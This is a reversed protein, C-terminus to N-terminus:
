LDANMEYRWSWRNAQTEFSSMRHDDSGSSILSPTGVGFLYSLGFNQSDFTHGYERWFLGRESYM